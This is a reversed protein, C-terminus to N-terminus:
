KKKCKQVQVVWCDLTIRHDACHTTGPVNRAAGSPLVATKTLCCCLAATLTAAPFALTEVCVAIKLVPFPPRAPRSSVRGVAGSYGVPQSLRFDLCAVQPEQGPAHRHDRVADSPRRVATPRESRPQSSPSCWGAACHKNALVEGGAQRTRNLICHLTVRSTLIIQVNGPAFRETLHTHKAAVLGSVGVVISQSRRRPRVVCM